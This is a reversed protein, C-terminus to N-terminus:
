VAYRSVEVCFLCVESVVGCCMQGAEGLQALSEDMEAQTILGKSVKSKHTAVESAWIDNAQLKSDQCTNSHPQWMCVASALMNARDEIEEKPSDQLDVLLDAARRELVQLRLKWPLVLGETQIAHLHQILDTRQMKGIKERALCQCHKTLIIQQELLNADARKEEKWRKLM